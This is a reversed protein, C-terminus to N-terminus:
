AANVANALPARIVASHEELVDFLKPSINSRGPEGQSGAVVPGAIYSEAAARNEFLYIVV